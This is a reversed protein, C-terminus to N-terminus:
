LGFLSVVGVSALTIIIGAILVGSAIAIASKKRELNLIWALICATYAGTFPLPVGVFLALAILGYRELNSKVKEEKKRIVNLTSAFVRRYFSLRLFRHHLYDFFLFLLPVIAINAATAVFFALLPDVGVIVMYPIAARLEGFPLISLLIGLLILNAM